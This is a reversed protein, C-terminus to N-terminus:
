SVHVVPRHKANPIARRLVEHVLPAADGAGLFLFRFLNGIPNGETWSFYAHPVKGTDRELYILIAAISNAVVPSSAQLVAHKGVRQGTVNLTCEFASADGPSVEFFYVREESSLNHCYRVMQDARDLDEASESRPKRAVLHIVQDEDEALLERAKEDLHVTHIRLETSRMARSVLSTAIMAVIFFSAIKIGEPREYVNLATTYVFILAICFYPLRLWGKPVTLWVAIAASTMLVLVGTAYAGGQADVDARFL